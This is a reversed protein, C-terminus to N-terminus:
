NLVPNEMSGHYKSMSQGLAETKKKTCISLVSTHKWFIQQRLSSSAHITADCHKRDNNQCQESPDETAAAAPPFFRGWNTASLQTGGM